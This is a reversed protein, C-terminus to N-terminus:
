SEVVGSGNCKYNILYNRDGGERPYNFRTVTVLSNKNWFSLSKKTENEMGHRAFRALILSKIVPLADSSLRLPLLIFSGKINDRNFTSDTVGEVSDTYFTTKWLRFLISPMRAITFSIWPWNPPPFPDRIEYGLWVPVASHFSLFPRRDQAEGVYSDRVYPFATRFPFGQTNRQIETRWTKLRCVAAGGHFVFPFM